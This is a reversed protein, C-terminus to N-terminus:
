EMYVEKIVRNLFTSKVDMQYIKFGFYYTLRLLLRVFELHAVLAFNEDFGIVKIQTYGQTVFRSKSRDIVENEDEKNKYLWHTIRLDPFLIGFM